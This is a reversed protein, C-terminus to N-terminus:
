RPASSLLIVRLNAAPCHRHHIKEQQSLPRLAEQLYRMFLLPSNDDEELSLWAISDGQQQRHHYWQALLTTKGFGAAACVLTLNRSAAGDLQQLLRDRHVLAGPSRPPTLKTLILPLARAFRFPEDHTQVAPVDRISSLFAM